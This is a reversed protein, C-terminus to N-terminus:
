DQWKLDQPKPKTEVTEAAPIGPKPNLTQPRCNPAFSGRVKMCTAAAKEKPLGAASTGKCLKPREAEAANSDVCRLVSKQDLGWSVEFRLRKLLDLAPCQHPIPLLSLLGTLLGNHDSGVCGQGQSCHLSCELFPRRALRSDNYSDQVPVRRGTSTGTSPM